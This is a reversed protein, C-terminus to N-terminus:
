VMFYDSLVKNKEDAKNAFAAVAILITQSNFLWTLRRNFLDHEFKLKNQYKEYEQEESNQKEM